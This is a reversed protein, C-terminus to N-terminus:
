ILSGLFLLWCPLPTAEFCAAIIVLARYALGVGDAFLSLITTTIIVLHGVRGEQAFALILLIFFLIALFQCIRLQCVEGASLAHGQHRFFRLFKALIHRDIREFVCSLLLHTQWASLMLLRHGIFVLAALELCDQVFLMLLDNIPLVFDVLHVTSCDSALQLAKDEVVLAALELLSNNCLYLSDLQARGRM